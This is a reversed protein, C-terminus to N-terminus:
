GGIQVYMGGPLGFKPKWKLIEDRVQAAVKGIAAVIASPTQARIYATIEKPDTRALVEHASNIAAQFRTADSLVGADAVTISYLPTKAPERPVMGKVQLGTALVVAPVTKLDFLGLAHEFEPDTTDWINVSTAPGSNRGFSRLAEIVLTDTATNFRSPFYFIGVKVNGLKGYLLHAWTFQEGGMARLAGPKMRLSIGNDVLTWNSM